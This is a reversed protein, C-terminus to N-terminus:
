FLSYPSLTCPGPNSRTRDLLHRVELEGSCVFYVELSPDGCELILDGPLVSLPVMDLQLQAIIEVSLLSFAIQRCTELVAPVAHLASWCSCCHPPPTRCGGSVLWSSGGREGVGLRGAAAVFRKLTPDVSSM